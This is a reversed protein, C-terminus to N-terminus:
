AKKSAKAEALTEKLASIIKDIDGRQADIASVGMHGIRFYKTKVAAHLGGAVVIDKKLLRPVVDSAELGDPFYLATMGNAAVETSLPLGKFGMAEAAKKLRSSADKQLKFREELTVSGKTIQSLSAHFAYILNVPPTAFYGATGAEYAKMIPLWKKWSGYYSTIRTKRTEYVKMARESAVVISLGPPAGLGKQSATLVVDIGWDDFRIEESAVSCVADVVILTEPSVKRVVEAVAKIDSLVGTSTDVHTVTLVKYKKSKLAREVEAPSVVSGLDAKVQDVKAGYTELCDAFSDAFYGSHLVLVNEGPEVLNASVQDWGLTGSGSILFPQASKTYLVDRTMRICDGFVAAFDLSMHSVLPHANAYLVEDTVEIPGPIVLLKHSQQRFQNQSSM